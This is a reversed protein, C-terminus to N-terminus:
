EDYLVDFREIWGFLQMMMWLQHSARFVSIQSTEKKLNLGQNFIKELEAKQFLNSMPNEDFLLRQALDKFAKNQYKYLPINFGQKPHNFVAEPLENKMMERILYKGVGDKILFKDPLQAAANFLTRDLFPARVELSNAMSMHDVKVLMNSPLTHKTRYYMIKRLSSWNEYEEPYSKLLPYSNVIGLKTSSGNLLADIEPETFMENLAIAIDKDNLTSTKLARRIQRLQSVNNLGSVSCSLNLVEEGISRLSKPTKKLRLIKTYWQFMDYGGFLEDGGDGSIAVKVHEKIKKSIHYTPIASSDRFPQGVHDIINWFIDETFQADSIVVEHHDTGCYKAVAKAIESEDYSQDEFKVNFTKIPKSSQKQLLAVLSSSDIGGSLFAGIPVDSVSQKQVAGVLLPKIYDKADQISKISPNVKYEISFYKEISIHSNEIKIYHGPLLSKVDKFLTLTDPILSTRLYYPLAENDLIRPIENNKLLSAIESSFSLDFESQYYYLPKEGMADRGIIFKQKTKDYLCFAFMGNIHAFMSEGYEEYLHVLVETDSKTSFTHGLKELEQKLELYNYIEGNLFVLVDKKENYIPQKGSELDIISLRRMALACNADDYYGDDDPGRHILANNMLKVASVTESDLIKSKSIIGTIGCM